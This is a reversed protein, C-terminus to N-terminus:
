IKEICHLISRIRRIYQREVNLKENVTIGTVSLRSRYNNLRTKENNVKFGNSNVIKLIESSLQLPIDTDVYALEKPFSSKKTSFTIDDAYRTYTSHTKHALKTFEKDMRFSLINSIMPSTAAGQPLFGEHHCCLNALTSAVVTNFGFYHIFMARVRGFRINEFFNELDFNLIYKQKSHQNANTIISREKIFGHASL